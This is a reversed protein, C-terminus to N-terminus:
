DFSFMYGEGRVTQILKPHSPDDEIKKRLNSLHVMVTRTDGFSDTGWISEFLTQVTVPEGPSRVLKLLILFEKSSLHIQQEGKYVTQHEMDVRMDGFILDNQMGNESLNRMYVQTCSKGHFFVPSPAVFVHIDKTPLKLKITTPEMGRYQNSVRVREEMETHHDKHIYEFVNRHLIEEAGMELLDLCATNAFLITGQHHIIVPDATEELGQQVLQDKEGEVYLMWGLRDGLEVSECSLVALSEVGESTVYKVKKRLCKEASDFLEESKVLFLKTLSQGALEKSTYGFVMESALNIKIITGDEELLLVPDKSWEWLKQFLHKYSTLTM